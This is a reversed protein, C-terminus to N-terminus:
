SISYTLLLDRWAAKKYLPTLLLKEPDYTVIIPTQKLYHLHGRMQEFPKNGSLLKSATDGGLALIIQPEILKIQDNLFDLADFTFDLKSVKKHGVAFLMKNLLNNADASLPNTIILWKINGDYTNESMYLEFLDSDLSDELVASKQSDGVENTDRPLWVDIGMAKLYAYQLNRPYIM